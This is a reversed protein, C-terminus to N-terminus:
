QKALLSGYGVENGPDGGCDVKLGFGGGSTSSKGSVKECEDM